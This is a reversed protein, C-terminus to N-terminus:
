PGKEREAVARALEELRAKWQMEIEHSVVGEESRRRLKELMGRFPAREPIMAPTLADIAEELERAALAARRVKAWDPVEKREKSAEPSTGGERRPVEAMHPKAREYRAPATRREALIREITAIHAGPLERTVFYEDRDKERRSPDRPDLPRRETEHAVARLVTARLDQLAADPRMGRAILGRHYDHSSMELFAKADEDSDGSLKFDLIRQKEDERQREILDPQEVEGRDKSAGGFRGPRGGREAEPTRAEPTPASRQPEFREM